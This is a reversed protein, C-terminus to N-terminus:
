VQAWSNVLMTFLGLVFLIIGLGTLLLALYLRRRTERSLHGHESSWELHVRAGCEPCKDSATSSYSLDYGCKCHWAEEEKFPFLLGSSVFLLIASFYFWYQEPVFRIGIPRFMTKAQTQFVYESVFPVAIVLVALVFFATSLKRRRM